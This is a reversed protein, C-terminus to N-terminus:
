GNPSGPIFIVTDKAGLPLLLAAFTIIFLLKKM